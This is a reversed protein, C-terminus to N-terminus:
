RLLELRRASSKEVAGPGPPFATPERRRDANEEVREVREDGGLAVHDLDAGRRRRRGHEAVDARRQPDAREVELMEAELDQRGVPRRKRRVMLGCDVGHLRSAARCSAVSPDSGAARAASLAAVSRRTSASPWM